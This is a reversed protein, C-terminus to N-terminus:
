RHPNSIFKFYHNPLSDLVKKADNYCSYVGYVTSGSGSMLAFVAGNEYFFDKIRKIEPYKNFVFKEFDNSIGDRMLDFDLENNKIFSQFKINTERPIIKDFAEKTSINIRPNVILVPHTITIPLYELIEGRSRGISPKSNIFFPVDSGLKLALELLIKENMNLKYLENLTVLTVAADSSGGGLGAQSPINKSLTISVKLKKRVIEELLLKTKVVLNSSDTPIYVDNCVFKFTDSKEFTLTDYLDHIPYFLTLLNHFGDSRKSLIYLGINIKAPTKVEISNM